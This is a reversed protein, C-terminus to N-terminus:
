SPIYKEEDGSNASEASVFKQKIAEKKGKFWDKWGTKETMKKFQSQLADLEKKLDVIQNANQLKDTEGLKKLDDLQKTFDVIQNANQQKYTEYLKRMGDLEKKLDAIQNVNQLKDTEGLKKLDDLQKTLATIQEDIQQKAIAKYHDDLKEQLAKSGDGAPAFQDNLLKTREVVLKDNLTVTGTGPKGDKDLGFQSDVSQKIESDVRNNVVTKLQKLSEGNLGFEAAIITDKETRIKQALAVMEASPAGDTGPNFLKERAAKACVAISKDLEKLEDSNESFKTKLVRLTEANLVVMGAGPKGNVDTVFLKAIEDAFRKGQSEFYDSIIAEVRGIVVKKGEGKEACFNQIDVILDNKCSNVQEAIAKEVADKVTKLAAGQVDTENQAGKFQQELAEHIKTEIKAPLNKWEDSAREFREQLEGHAIAFQDELMKIETKLEKGASIVDVKTKESVSNIAAISRDSEKKLHEEFQESTKFLNECLRTCRNKIKTLLADVQAPYLWWYVGGTVVSAVLGTAFITKKTLFSTYSSKKARRGHLNHKAAKKTVSSECACDAKVLSSNGICSFVVLLSFLLRFNQSFLKNM